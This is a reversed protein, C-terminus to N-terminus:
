SAVAYREPPTFSAAGLQEILKGFRILDPESYHPGAIQLGIPLGERSRGAPVVLAPNGCANYAVTFAAVYDMYPLSRGELAIPEHRHNHPFAPGAAVPSVIFDVGRFQQELRAVLAMRRRLARVFALLDLGLGKGLPGMIGMSTGRAMRGLQRRLLVRGIWPTDQGAIVGFLLAWIAYAERWWALDLPQEVSTVGASELKDIFSALVLRTDEGCAIGGAESFWAVRYDALARQTAPRQPLHHFYSWTPQDILSWALEIDDMTRALPGVSAMSVYGGRATPVPPVHGDGHMLSNETPKLGFVGCFHAPVRISGGIDSGIELATLGAAVAAGGGGTSGGPTRAPDHPNNATPYLPGFSQFDSLMTPLNTKGVIVAGAERLRRVVMADSTAINDALMKLNVTTRLGKMDFSEKVTVPVGHLPGRLVNSRLDADRERADRRAVDEDDQVLAHLEPNHQRIRQLYATTLDESTERGERIAVALRVASDFPSSHM